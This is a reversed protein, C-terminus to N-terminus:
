IEGLLEHREHIQQYRRIRAYITGQGIQKAREFAAEASEHESDCEFDLHPVQQTRKYVRYVNPLEGGVTDSMIEIM